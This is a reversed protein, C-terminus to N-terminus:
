RFKQYWLEGMTVSIEFNVFKEEVLNKSKNGRIGYVLAFDFRNIQSFPIGLGFHAAYQMVPENNFKYGLATLSFGTRFDLRDLFKANRYKRSNRELGVGLQYWDDLQSTTFLDVGQSPQQKIGFGDSWNQASYDISFILQRHVRYSSGIGFHLPFSGSNTLETNKQSFPSNFNRKLNISPKFDVFGAFMLKKNPRYDLSLGLGPGRLQYEIENYSDYYNSNNFSLKYQDKITGFYYNGSISIGIESHPSWILGIQARSINGKLFVTEDYNIGQDQITMIYKFDVYSYPNLSIGLLFKHTKLPIALNMDGMYSTATTFNLNSLETESRAYQFGVTARTDNIFRWKSISYNSLAISDPTALGTGGMGVGRINVTYKRVGIGRSSATFFSGGFANSM